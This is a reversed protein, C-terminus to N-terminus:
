HKAPPTPTIAATKVKIKDGAARVSAKLDDISKDVTTKTNDWTTPTSTTIGNMNTRVTERHTTVDALLKDWEAKTAGTASAAATKM